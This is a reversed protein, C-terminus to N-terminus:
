GLESSRHELSSVSDGSTWHSGLTQHAPDLYYRMADTVATRLDRRPEWGLSRIKEIDPVVRNTDQYGEGYFEEGEIEVLRCDPAAGTLDEYVECMIEAFERISVDISPNGINFIQNTAKPHELITLFAQNADDIHTFSRHVHGGDVLYMPGGALLASMFHAFVRPGGRAGAPVLYDLRSGLFNFPRLITYTLRGELGYAHVVRELLQKASAYIWRQKTVPGMVLASEDERYTLGSPKGYIESTSYQILRTGTDACQELVALNAQFNLDFVERPRDVYISPHAYSILDVAVDTDAILEAITDFDSRADAYVFGFMPGDIGALKDSNIDVGIVSHEGHDILAEALHSGVFGGAGLLLVKM